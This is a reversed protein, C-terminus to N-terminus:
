TCLRPLCPSQVSFVGNETMLPVASLKMTSTTSILHKKLVLGKKSLLLGREAAVDLNEKPVEAMDGPDDLCFLIVFKKYVETRLRDPVSRIDSDDLLEM